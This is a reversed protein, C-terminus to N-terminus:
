AHTEGTTGARDPRPAAPGPGADPGAPHPPAPARGCGTGDRLRRLAQERVRGRQIKGTGTSPLADFVIVRRPCKHSPLRARCFDILEDTRVVQGPVAVVCAVPRDLGDGDPIAVAAAQHVCPHQLLQDEVETPSVWIGSSKIMDDARGLYTYSGDEGRTFVDGTALWEGRFVRRSLDSRAWYGTAASPANVELLGAQGPGAPGGDEALVRMRYGPVPTGVSGRRVSGPRNSLYVHLAETSGLADILEVGFREQFRRHLASPLPEGASVALRVSAFADDPVDEARLLAAYATPVGFFVSPGDERLRRVIATPTPRDPSLVVAAGAALPLLCSNGLGYAFFLKAVSFCRDEPGIGLVRRGFSEAVHRLSGHRHMAAKPAGATGSTYLWLAPSDETTRDAAGDAPSGSAGAAALHEWRLRAVGGPPLVPADSLVVVATLDSSPHLLTLAEEAARACEPGVLLFRARSDRLAAALEGGTGMVPFPVAVAGARIVSLLATLLDPGDAAMLVVREEPRLGAARWGAASDAVRRGLETYGVRGCPGIVATRAGHGREIQRDVLHAAANFVEHTM